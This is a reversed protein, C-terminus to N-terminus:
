YLIKGRKGKDKSEYNLKAQRYEAGNEIQEGCEPGIARIEGEDPYYVLLM